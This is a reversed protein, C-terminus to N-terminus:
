LASFFAGIEGVRGAALKALEDCRENEKQGTHGRIHYWSVHHMACLEDLSQWLEKNKVSQKVATKWGRKKWQVLWNKVFGNMVYQSDVYLDVQCPRKLQELAKIAGMLEMQNNTTQPEGGYFEKSTNGYRLIAAYGGPGPNGLCSGDTYITVRNEM